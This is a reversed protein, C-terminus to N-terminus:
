TYAASGPCSTVASGARPPTTGPPQVLVVGTDGRLTPSTRSVPTAPNPSPIRATLSSPQSLGHRPCLM